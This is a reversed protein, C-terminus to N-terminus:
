LLEWGMLRLRHMALSDVSQAFAFFLFRSSLSFSFWPELSPERKQTSAQPLPAAPATLCPVFPRLCCSCALRGSPRCTQRTRLISSCPLGVLVREVLLPLTDPRANPLPPHIGPLRDQPGLSPLGSRESARLSPIQYLSAASGARGSPGSQARLISE